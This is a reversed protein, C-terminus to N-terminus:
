DYRRFIEYGLGMKNLISRQINANANFITVKRYKKVVDSTWIGVNGSSGITLDGKLSLLYRIMAIDNAPRQKPKRDLLLVINGDGNKFQLAVFYERHYINFSKSKYYLLYNGFFLIAILCIASRLFANLRSKSYVIWILSLSVLVAILLSFNGEIILFELHRILLETLLTIAKNLLNVVNAFPFAIPQFIFSLVLAVFGYIIMIVFLPLVIINSIFVLFSYFGFYFAVLPATLIHSSITVAILGRIYRFVVLKSPLVFWIVREARNYFLAISLVSLFSLQFGISFVMNPSFILVILLIFALINIINTKRELSFCYYFVLFMLSARTASPPFKIIALYLLLFISLLFLNLWRSEIRFLSSAVFFFIAVIIGIHFGSVALLHALGSLSFMMREEYGLLSRDALLVALMIPVDENSFISIIRERLKQRLGSVFEEVKSKFSYKWIRIIQKEKVRGLLRVDNMLALFVEDPDTPLTKKRPLRIEANALLFDGKQLIQSSDSFYVNLLVDTHFNEQRLEFDAELVVRQFGERAEFAESVKGFVRVKVYSFNSVQKILKIHEFNTGGLLGSSLLLVSYVVIFQKRVAFYIALIALFIITVIIQQFNLFLSLGMGLLVFILMKLFPYKQM